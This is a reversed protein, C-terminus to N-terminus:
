GKVGGALGRVLYNNGLLVIALIPLTVIAGAASIEGWPYVFQGSFLSIGVPVTRAQWTSTFTLAFLFENWCFILNLLGASVLGTRGAPLYIRWFMRWHGCGDVRAAHYLSGPLEDFVQYMVWVAPPVTFVSYVLILGLLSDRLHLSGLLEFFPTVVAVPPIMFVVLLALLVGEKGKKLLRCIGFAGLSGVALSVLTAGLSVVLSNGIVHMFPENSLVAQYNKFDVPAPWIPPLQSVRAPDKLSTVWQWLFPALNWFALAAVFFLNILKNM